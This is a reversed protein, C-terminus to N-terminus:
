PLGTTMMSGTLPPLRAFRGSLTAFTKLAASGSEEIAEQASRYAADSSPSTVTREPMDVTSWIFSLRDTMFPNVLSSSFCIATISSALFASAATGEMGQVLQSYQM